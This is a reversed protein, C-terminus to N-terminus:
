VLSEILIIADTVLTGLATAIALLTMTNITFGSLNMFFLGAVLSSPIMIGAIITTRWNRTFVLLVIVTLALGLFIDRM